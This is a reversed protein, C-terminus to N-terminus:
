PRAKFDSPIALVLEEFFSNADRLESLIQIQGATLSGMDGRLTQGIMVDVSSLKASLEALSDEVRLTRLGLDSSMMAGERREVAPTTAAANALCTVLIRGSAAVRPLIALLEVGVNTLNGKLVLDNLAAVRDKLPVLEALAAQYTKPYEIPPVWRVGPAYTALKEPSQIYPLIADDLPVKYVGICDPSTDGQLCAAHSPTVPQLLCTSLFISGFSLIQRRRQQVCPARLSLASSLASVILSLFLAKNM